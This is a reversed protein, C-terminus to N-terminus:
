PLPMIGMEALRAVVRFTGDGMPRVIAAQGEPLEVGGAEKMTPSHGVLVINAGSPPPQALRAKLRANAIAVQEQTQSAHYLLGPNIAPARGFAIEATQRARCFPSAELVTVPIGLEALRAGLAAAQRRGDDSLDRQWSCDALDRVVPEPTAGTAAHRLYIVFGGARLDAVLKKYADSALVEAPIPAVSVPKGHLMSGPSAQQASATAVSALLAFTLFGLKM